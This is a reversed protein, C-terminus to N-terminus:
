VCFTIVVIEKKLLTCTYAEYGVNTNYSMEQHM